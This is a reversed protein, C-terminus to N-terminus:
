GKRLWRKREAQSLKEISYRLMTRPMVAAHKELFGKLVAADRKGAERLMWGTAKQILDEEDALLREALLLTEDFDNKRIFHFTAMVAIRRDWLLPSRALRYLPRRSRNMLHAGVIHEASVDVLDWNNIRETSALYTRYIGTRAAAEERYVSILVLLALFREEHLASALLKGADAVGLDPFEKAVGRVQPVRLGLFRDGEGYEGPGTKFFRQLVAAHEKDALSRLRKRAAALGGGHPPVTM